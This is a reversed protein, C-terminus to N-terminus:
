CCTLSFFKSIIKDSLHANRDFHCEAVSGKLRGLPLDRGHYPVTVRHKSIPHYFIYHSGTVHDLEFGRQKLFAIIQKSTLRPLRPM